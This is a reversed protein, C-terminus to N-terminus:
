STTADRDDDIVTVAAAAGARRAAVRELLAVKQPDYGREKLWRICEPLELRYSPKGAPGPLAIARLDGARIARRVIDPHYDLRGAFEAVTFFDDGARDGGPLRQHLGDNRMRAKAKALCAEIAAFCQDVVDVFISHLQSCRGIARALRVRSGDSCLARSAGEGLPGSLAVLGMARRATRNDRGDNDTLAGWSLDVHNSRANEVNTKWLIQRVHQARARCFGSCSFGNDYSPQQALQERGAAGILEKVRFCQLVQVHCLVAAGAIEATAIRIRACCAGV